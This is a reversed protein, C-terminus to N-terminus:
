TAETKFLFLANFVMCVNYVEVHAYKMEVKTALIFHFSSGMREILDEFCIESSRMVKYFSWPM